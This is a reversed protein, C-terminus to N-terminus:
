FFVRRGPSGSANSGGLVQPKLDKGESLFTMTPCVQGSESM